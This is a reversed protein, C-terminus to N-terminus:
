QSLDALKREATKKAERYAGSYVAHCYTLWAQTGISPVSSKPKADRESQTRALVRVGAYLAQIYDQRSIADTENLLRLAVLATRETIAAFITTGLEQSAKGRPDAGLVGDLAEDEPIADLRILDERLHWLLSTEGVAAHDGTYVGDTTMDYETAALITVPSRKMVTLAARKLTLTQALGFHGTFAVIVKFGMAAYQEFMSVYLPEIIDIPHDLTYPYPVGGVASYSTPALIADTQEAIQECIGRAVLGDLGVPLHHSHWEITGFPIVLIPNDQLRAEIENPFMEELKYITM